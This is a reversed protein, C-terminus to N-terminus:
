PQKKEEPKKEEAKKEETKKVPAAAPTKEACEAVAFIGGRDIKIAISVEWGTEKKFNETKDVQKEVRKVCDALKKQDIKMNKLAIRMREIAQDLAQKQAQATAVAVDRSVAHGKSTVSDSPVLEREDKIESTVYAWTGATSIMIIKGNDIPVTFDKEIEKKVGNQFTWTSDEHLVITMGAPTTLIMEKPPKAAFLSVVIFCVLALTRFSLM